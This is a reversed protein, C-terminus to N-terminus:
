PEEIWIYVYDAPLAIGEERWVKDPTPKSPDNKKAVRVADIRPDKEPKPPEFDELLGEVIDEVDENFNCSGNKQCEYYGSLDVDCCSGGASSNGTQQQTNDVPKYGYTTDYTVTPIIPARAVASSTIAGVTSVGASPRVTGLRSVSTNKSSLNASNARVPIAKKVSAGGAAVPVGSGGLARVAPLAFAPMSFLVLFLVFYKKMDKIRVRLNM